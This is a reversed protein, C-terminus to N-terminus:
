DTRFCLGENTANTSAQIGAHVSCGRIRSLPTNGIHMVAVWDLGPEPPEPPEIPKCPACTRAFSSTAFLTVETGCVYNGTDTHTVRCRHKRM